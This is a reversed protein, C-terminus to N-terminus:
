FSVKLNQSQNHASGDNELVLVASREALNWAAFKPYGVFEQKLTTRSRSKTTFLMLHGTSVDTYIAVAGDPSIAVMDGDCQCLQEKKYYVFVFHGIGEFSGPPTVQSRQVERFGHQLKRSSESL